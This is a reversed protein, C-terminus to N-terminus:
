AWYVHSIGFTCKNGCNRMRFAVQVTKPKATFGPDDLVTIVEVVRQPLKVKEIFEAKSLSTITGDIAYDFQFEDPLNKMETLQRDRGSGENNVTTWDKTRSNRSSDLNTILKLIIIGETVEPLEMVLWGAWENGVVMGRSDHHGLTPCPDGFSRGCIADYEGNCDGPPEDV